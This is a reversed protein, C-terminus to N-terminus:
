FILSAALFILSAAVQCLDGVHCYSFRLGAPNKFTQDPGGVQFIFKIQIFIDGQARAQLARPLHIQEPWHDEGDPHM